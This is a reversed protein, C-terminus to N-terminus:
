DCDKYSNYRKVCSGNSRNGFSCNDEISLPVRKPMRKSKTSKFKSESEFNKAPYCM